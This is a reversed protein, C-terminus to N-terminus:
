HVCCSETQGLEDLFTRRKYYECLRAVRLSHRHVIGAHHQELPLVQVIHTRREHAKFQAPSKEDDVLATCFTMTGYGHYSQEISYCFFPGCSAACDILDHHRHDFVMADVDHVDLEVGFLLFFRRYRRKGM